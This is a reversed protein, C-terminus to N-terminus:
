QLFKRPRSDRLSSSQSEENYNDPMFTIYNPIIGLSAYADVYMQESSISKPKFGTGDYQRGIDIKVRLWNSQNGQIFFYNGTSNLFDYIINKDPEETSAFTLTIMQPNQLFYFGTPVIFASKNTIRFELYFDRDDTGLVIKCYDNITESNAIRGLLEREIVGGLKLIRTKSAFEIVADITMAYFISDVSKPSEIEEEKGPAKAGRRLLFIVKGDNSFRRSNGSGGASTYLWKGIVPVKWVIPNGLRFLQLDQYRPSSTLTSGEPDQVFSCQVAGRAKLYNQTNIFSITMEKIRFYEYNRAMEIANGDFMYKNVPSLYHFESAGDAGETFLKPINTNRVRSHHVAHSANTPIEVHFPVPILPKM